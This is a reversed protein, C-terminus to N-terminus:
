GYTIVHNSRKFISYDPLTETKSTKLTQGSLTFALSDEKAFNPTLHTIDTPQPPSVEDSLQDNQIRLGVISINDHMKWESKTLKHIEAMIRQAPNVPDAGEEAQIEDKEMEMLVIAIARPMLKCGDSAVIVYALNTVEYFYVMPMHSLIPMASLDGARAVCNADQMWFDGLARTMRVCGNFQGKNPKARKVGPSGRLDKVVGGAAKIRAHDPAYNASHLKVAMTAELKNNEDRTVVYIPSDGVNALMLYSPTLVAISATTGDRPIGNQLTWNPSDVKMEAQLQKFGAAVSDAFTQRVPSLFSDSKKLIEFLRTQAFTAAAPGGHGDFVAGYVFPTEHSPGVHVDIRDEFHPRSGQVAAATISCTPLQISDTDFM